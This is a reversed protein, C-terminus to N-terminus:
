TNVGIKSISVVRFEHGHNISGMNVAFDSMCDVYIGDIADQLRGTAGDMRCLWHMPDGYEDTQDWGTCMDGLEEVSQADLWLEFRSLIADKVDILSSCWDLMSVDFQYGKSTITHAM